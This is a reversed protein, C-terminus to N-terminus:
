LNWTYTIDYKHYTDNHYIMHGGIYFCVFVFCFGWMYFCVIQSELNADSSPGTKHSWARLRHLRHQSQTTLSTFQQVGLQYRSFQHTHPTANLPLFWVYQHWFHSHLCNEKAGKKSVHIYQYVVELM